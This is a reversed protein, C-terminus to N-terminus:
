GRAEGGGRGAMPWFRELLVEDRKVEPEPVDLAQLAERGAPLLSYRAVTRDGRKGTTVVYGRAVLPPLTGRVQVMMLGTHAAIERVLHHGDGIARLVTYSKTARFPIAM